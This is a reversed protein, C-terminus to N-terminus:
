IISLFFIISTLIIENGLLFINSKEKQNISPQAIQFAISLINKPSTVSKM